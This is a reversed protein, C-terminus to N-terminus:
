AAKKLKQFEKHTITKKNIIEESDKEFKPILSKYSRNGKEPFYHIMLHLHPEISWGTNGSLGIKQGTKVLEGENVLISDKKLHSYISFENNKHEIVVYNGDQEEKKMYDEAPEEEKNWNKIVNNSVAVVKGELSANVNKGEKCLFDIAKTVDYIEKEEKYIKHGPSDKIIYEIEKENIPLQYTNKSEM